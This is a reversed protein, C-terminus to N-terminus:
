HRALYGHSLRDSGDFEVTFRMCDMTRTGAAYRWANASSRLDPAPM